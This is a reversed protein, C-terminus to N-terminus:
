RSEESGVDIMAHFHVVDIALLCCVHSNKLKSQTKWAKTNKILDNRIRCLAQWNRLYQAIVHIAKSKKM